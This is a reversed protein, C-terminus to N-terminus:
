FESDRYEYISTEDMAVYFKKDSEMYHNKVMHTFTKAEEVCDFEFPMLSEPVGKVGIYVIM